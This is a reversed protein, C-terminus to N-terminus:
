KIYTNQDLANIHNGLGSKQLRNKIKRLIELRMRQDYRFSYKIKDEFQLEYHQRLQM